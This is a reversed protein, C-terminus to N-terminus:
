GGTATAAREIADLARAVDRPLAGGDIRRYARLGELDIRLRGRLWLPDPREGTVDAALSAAAEAPLGVILRAVQPEAGLPITALSGGDAWRSRLAEFVQDYAEWAAQSGMTDLDAGTEDRIAALVLAHVTETWGARCGEPDALVRVLWGRHGVTARDIRDAVARCVRPTWVSLFVDTWGTDDDM